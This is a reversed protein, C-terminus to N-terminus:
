SLTFPPSDHPHLTGVCGAIGHEHVVSRAFPIKRSRCTPLGYPVSFCDHSTAKTSKDHHLKAATSLRRLFSRAQCTGAGLAARKVMTHATIACPTGGNQRTGAASSSGGCTVGYSQGASRGALRLRQCAGPAPRYASSVVWCTKKIRPLYQPLRRSRV